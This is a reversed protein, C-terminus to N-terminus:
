GVLFILAILVLLLTTWGIIARQTARKARKVEWWNSPAIGQSLFTGVGALNVCIVNVMLLLTAHSAGNFDAVALLIGIVVVPPLLAVAVMVGVLTAPVGRTFALAGAIGAALALCVDGIGVQTRNQIADVTTDVPLVWGVLLALMLAISVGLLNTKLSRLALATDGLTTALALSVNPGLLPAIVMAGVLVVDDDRLVGVTAVVTSLVVTAIYARSIHAGEVVDDYLEERSIRDFKRKSQTNESADVKEVVRPLTAEVNLVVARHKSHDSFQHDFVDLLSETDQSKALIRVLFDGDKLEDRWVDITDIELLAGDLAEIEDQPLVIEIMRLAM